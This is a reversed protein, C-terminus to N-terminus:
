THTHTFIYFFVQNGKINQVFSSQEVFPKEKTERLSVRSTGIQNKKKLLVM